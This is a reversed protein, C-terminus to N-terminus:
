ISTKKFLIWWINTAHDLCQNKSKVTDTM